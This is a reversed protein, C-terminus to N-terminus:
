AVDLDSGGCKPCDQPDRSKFKKGCELCVVSILPARTSFFRRGAVPPELSTEESMTGIESGCLSFLSDGFSLDQALRRM